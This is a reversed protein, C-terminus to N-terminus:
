IAKGGFNIMLTQVILTIIFIIFFLPNNFFNKFVNFENAELKRANIQNFLQM